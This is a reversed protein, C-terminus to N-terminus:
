ATLTGDWEEPAGKKFFEDCLFFYIRAAEDRYNIRIVEVFRGRADLFRGDQYFMIGEEFIDRTEQKLRSIADPDCQFLDYIKVPYEKDEVHVLGLWRYQYNDRISDDIMDETILISTGFKETLKEMAAALNVTDSIVAGEMRKEEGVIGLMLPGRHIGIGIDVPNYGSKKRHMNYLELEARMQVAAKLADGPGDPFVAMIGAGLYKGIFGGNNRIVPGIRSLFSNIFNFSEEPSLSDAMEFFSRINAFMVCMDQKVQDGLHVGIISEKNLFNLFQQPVFRLYSQNLLTIDSIYKKIHDSMINFSDSLDGVEDSTNVSVRTDWNGKTVEIVGDRLVRISKLIMYTTIFFVIIIVLIALAIGKGIEVLLNNKYQTYGNLDMGTEYVGVVKGSPDYLPALAYMWNGDQDSTMDTAVKGTELVKIYEEAGAEVPFYPSVSDDYAMIMFLQGNEIRYVVGYLDGASADTNNDNLSHVRERIAMYDPSMFGSPGTIRELQYGAVTKSAANALVIMKSYLEDEMRQAFKGYVVGAVLIMSIAILPVFVAIQKILLSVRRQMIDVYLVKAGFLALGITILPLLWFLLKIAITKAPYGVSDLVFKVNGNPFVCVLSDSIGAVLSGNKAVVVNSLNAFPMDIGQSLLSQASIVTATQGNLTIMDVEKKGVDVFYLTNEGGYVPYRPIPRYTGKYDGGTYLPVPTGYTDNVRFIEGKKTSYFISGAQQGTVDSIYMDEPLNFNYVNELNKGDLSLRNLLMSNQEISYFYINNDIIALSQLWGTRVPRKDGEYDVRYVVRDFEGLSSYRVIEESNVYHGGADLNTNLVYLFGESDVALGAYLCVADKDRQDRGIIFQMRGSSDIKVIRKRSQDITYLNDLSDATVFSLNNFSLRWNFPSERFSDSFVFQICSAILIAALVFILLLKRKNM